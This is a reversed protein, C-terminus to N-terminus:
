ASARPSRQRGAVREAVRILNEISPEYGWDRMIARSAEGASRRREPDAALERIAAGAAVHDEVPVLAGNRRDELLDFAAGVRDSLVLPLGCAAAENVVVGWPEHRSLLAFVDAVVFREVIRQWPVDPLLLLRVGLEEALAVLSEREDGSGALLLVLRPDGAEAVARVLTDQGKEPALRAVCLVAVDDPGVCAEARLEDRRAALRDAERGFHGADITDAFLSIREPPVGRALMAERALRGVVLVEAAGSVMRPVVAGKVARRWGPRADRENSEVLLVYPVRHRRCWEAAAQSAFTSWGSVVVVDPRSRRLQEFVGLSVPYEHRLVRYAGPIRLGELFVARHRPEITWTRRQVSGGAYLATLDLEPRAAIRDFMVTRFPTPEPIVMTLRVPGDPRSGRLWGEAARRGTRAATRRRLRAAGHVPLTPDLRLALRALTGRDAGSGRSRLLAWAAARRAERGGHRAEFVRVLEHLAEAAHPASAEPIRLGAGALWALEARDGDLAPALAAIQRLAVERQCERQLMARRASAQESHKRYLVLPDPINDGDAVTLMRAWLDYDESEGFATDYRLGHEDLVARDIVLTSHFFPSSFLAAWRVSRAGTPMFHVTGLSGDEHLDIMGAGVVAAAPASRIRAVVRELWEPLALDDADMRALLSGRAADFGVNLAGALGLPQENRVVRLRDDGVAALIADTPEVSGDDVVVLEFDRFTQDLVSRVAHDVTREADRAAVVVSVLPTAV